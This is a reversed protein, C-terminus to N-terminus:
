SKRSFPSLSRSPERAAEVDCPVRHAEEVLVPRRDARQQLASDLGPRTGVRSLLVAEVTQPVVCEKTAHEVEAHAQNCSTERLPRKHPALDPEGIEVEKM